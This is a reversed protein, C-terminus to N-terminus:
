GDTKVRHSGDSLKQIVRGSRGKREEVVIPAAEKPAVSTESPAAATFGHAGYSRLLADRQGKMKERLGEFKDAAVKKAYDGGVPAHIGALLMKGPLLEAGAEAANPMEKGYLAKAIAVGHVEHSALYGTPDKNFAQEADDIAKLGADYFGIRDIAEPPIRGMKELEAKKAAASQRFEAGHLQNQIAQQRLEDQHNQQAIQMEANQHMIQNELAKSERLAQAGKIQREQAQGIMGFGEKAQDEMTKALDTPEGGLATIHQAMLQQGRLARALAQAKGTPDDPLLAAYDLGDPPATPTDAM